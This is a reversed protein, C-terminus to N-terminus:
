GQYTFAHVCTCILCTLTKVLVDSGSWIKFEEEVNEVLGLVRSIIQQKHRVALCSMLYQVSLECMCFLLQFVFFEYLAM